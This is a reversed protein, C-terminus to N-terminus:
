MSYPEYVYCDKFLLIISVSPQWSNFFAYVPPFHTHSKFILLLSSHPSPLLHETDKGTNIHQHSLQVITKHSMVVPPLPIFPVHSRKTNNRVVVCSHVIIYFLFFLKILFYFMHKILSILNSRVFCICIINSCRISLIM